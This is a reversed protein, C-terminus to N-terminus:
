FEVQFRRLEQLSDIILGDFYCLNEDRIGHIEYLTLLEVAKCGAINGLELVTKCSQGNNATSNCSYYLQTCKPM